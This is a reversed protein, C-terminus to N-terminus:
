AYWSKYQPNGSWKKMYYYSEPSSLRGNEYVRLTYSPKDNNNIFNNPSPVVECAMGHSYISGDVVSQRIAKVMISRNTIKIVQFFDVNTQEYGWTNVVIDGIKYFDSALITKRNENREAKENVKSTQTNVFKTAYEMAKEESLFVFNSIVKYKRFRAKPTHQIITTKFKHNPFRLTQVDGYVNVEFKGIEFKKILSEM